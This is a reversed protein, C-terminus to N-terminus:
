ISRVMLNSQPILSEMNVDNDIVDSYPQEINLNFNVTNFEHRTEFNDSLHKDSNLM